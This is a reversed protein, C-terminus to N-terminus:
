QYGCHIFTSDFPGITMALAMIQQKVEAIDWDPRTEM